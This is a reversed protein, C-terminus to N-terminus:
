SAKGTGIVVLRDFGTGQPALLDLSTMAKGKFGATAASRRVVEEVGLARAQPGLMGDPGALVVVTGELKPGPKAFTVSVPRTM